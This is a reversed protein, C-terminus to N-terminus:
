SMVGRLAVGLSVAFSPGAEILTDELFAPYSVKSFPRGIEAPRSLADTVFMPLGKLLAGGGTLIVKEIKSSSEEEVHRLVSHVERFGRNLQSMFSKELEPNESVISLGEFRKREEATRFDVNLGKALADTLGMGSLQISHSKGIVGNQVVYVKTSGAGIDIICASSDKERLVSRMTSFLEIEQLQATLNAGKLISEYRSLAENHTAVLIGRTGKTDKPASIPVWDMTVDTLPVPIYKRAEVNLMQEANENNLTNLTIVSIFTSNYSIALAVRSASTASERLIDVFAEIIRDTRLRTTRGIDIGDYPGLQLEGYTDLIPTGRKMRLQVVKISSSGIDVGIVSSPDAHPGDKKLLTSLSGLGFSMSTNM